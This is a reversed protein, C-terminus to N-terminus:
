RSRTRRRMGLGIMGVLGLGLMALTSPEPVALIQGRIEGGPFGTGGTGSTHINLYWLGTNLQTLQTPLDFGGTGTALNVTGNITGSRQDANITLLSFISYLVGASTPAPGGLPSAPGHIHAGGSSVPASLGSFTGSLTLTSGNLTLNVIGSGTRGGGGDQAGDMNAIYSQASALSVSAVFALVSLITKMRM